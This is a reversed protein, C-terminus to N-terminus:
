GKLWSFDGHGMCSEYRDRFTAQSPCIVTNSFVQNKQPSFAELPLLKGCKLSLRVWASTVVPKEYLDQAETITSSDPNDAIVYTVNDSLYNILTGGHKFLLRQFEEDDQLDDALCFKVNEFLLAKEEHGDPSSM